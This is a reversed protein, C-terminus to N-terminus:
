SLDRACFWTVFYLGPLAETIEYAHLMLEIAVVTIIIKMGERICNSMTFCM